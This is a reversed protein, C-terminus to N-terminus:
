RESTGAFFRLYEGFDGRNHALSHGGEYPHFESAIGRELLAEHFSRVRAFFPDGATGADLYAAQPLAGIGGPIVGPLLWQELRDGSYEDDLLAPSFGGVKSFLDPHRLAIRVAIMGGMSYGCIYRNERNGAVDFRRDVYPVIDKLIALDMKREGVTRVFVVILPEIEGTDILADASTALGADVWQREDSGSGNLAYLVPYERGAGYGKPLYVACHAVAGLRKSPVGVDLLRSGALPMTDLAGDTKADTTVCGCLALCLAALVSSHALAKRAAVTKRADRESM